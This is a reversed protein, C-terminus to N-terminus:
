RHRLQVTLRTTVLRVAEGRQIAIGWESGVRTWRELEAYKQPMGHGGGALILMGPSSNMGSM